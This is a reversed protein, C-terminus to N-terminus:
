SNIEIEKVKAKPMPKRPVTVTLVGQKFDAKIGDQDADDPLTLVRQFEGFYREQRYQDKDKEEKEQQKEGSITMVNDVIDVKIEDKKAGPLEVTVTYAKDGASLDLSPKFPGDTIRQNLPHDFDFSAMGADQFMEHFLRDIEHHFEEIHSAFGKELDKTTGHQVPIKAGANKEHGFWNWMNWKNSVASQNQEASEVKKQTTDPATSAAHSFPAVTVIGAALLAAMGTRLLTETKM